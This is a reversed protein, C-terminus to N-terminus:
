SVDPVTHKRFVTILSGTYQPISIYHQYFSRVSFSGKAHWWSYKSVNLSSSGYGEGLARLFIEVMRCFMCFNHVIRGAWSQFFYFFVQKIRLTEYFWVMKTTCELDLGSLSEFLM